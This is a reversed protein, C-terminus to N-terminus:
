QGYLQVTKIKEERVVKELSSLQCKREHKKHVKKDFYMVLEVKRQPAALCNGICSSTDKCGISQNSDRLKSFM